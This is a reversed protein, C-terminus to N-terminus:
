TEPGSGKGLSREVDESGKEGDSIPPPASNIKTMVCYYIPGWGFGREHDPLAIRGFETEETLGDERERDLSRRGTEFRVEWRGTRADRGKWKEKRLAEVVREVVGDNEGRELSCTAYVVRGGVKAAELATRLLAVQTKVLGRWQGPRWGMMEEAMKGSAVARHHAHIVHRESSCPADVLVRDYANPAVPLSEFRTTGDFRSVQIKKETFLRSPLYAHLNANLRTCRTADFENCHLRGRQETEKAQSQSDRNPNGPQLLSPPSAHLHPWISQALAISKGGPAACLDLVTDGPQIALAHVALLSAAGLNYHTNLRDISSAIPVAKPQPLPLSTASAEPASTDNARLQPPQPRAFVQLFSVKHTAHGPIPPLGVRELHDLEVDAGLFLSELEARSIYQNVLAAYRPPKVLAPYLSEHWRENGWNSSSAYANHFSESAADYRKRDTKTIKSSPPM